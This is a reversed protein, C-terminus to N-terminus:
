LLRKIGVNLKVQANAEWARCRSGLIILLAM